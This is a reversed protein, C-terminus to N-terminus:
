SGIGKQRDLVYIDEFCWCIGHRKQGYLCRHKDCTIGSEWTVHPRQVLKFGLNTLVSHLNAEDLREPTRWASVFVNDETHLLIMNILCSAVGQKRYKEDVAVWTIESGMFVSKDAPKYGAAGVIFNGNMALFYHDAEKKTLFGSDAYFHRAYFKTVQNLYEPTCRIYRITNGSM